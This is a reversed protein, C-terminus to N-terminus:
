HKIAANAAEKGKEYFHKLFFDKHETSEPYNLPTLSVTIIPTGSNLAVSMLGDIVSSAVFEHSYVGGNVVFAACVIVDYCGLNAMNKAALPLEFAGPVNFVDVRQENIVNQFGLLSRNVIDEHWLAKIFGIRINKSSDFKM